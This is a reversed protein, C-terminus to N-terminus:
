GNKLDGLMTIAKAEICGCEAQITFLDLLAQTPHEGIGDGANILPIKIYSSAESASGTTPHRMVIVDAYCELCRVTDALTEGKSVSSNKVDTIAIAQGGL